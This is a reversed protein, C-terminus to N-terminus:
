LVSARYDASAGPYPEGLRPGDAGFTEAIWRNLNASRAAMDRRFRNRRAEAQAGTEVALSGGARRQLSHAPGETVVGAPAVRCPQAPTDFRISCGALLADVYEAFQANTPGVYVSLGVAHAPFWHQDGTALDVVSRMAKQFGDSDDIWEVVLAHDRHITQITGLSGYFLGPMWTDCGTSAPLATM